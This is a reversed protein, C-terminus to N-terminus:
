AQRDLAVAWDGCRPLEIGSRWAFALEFNYQLKSSSSRSVVVPNVAPATDPALTSAAAAAITPALTPAVAIALLAVCAELVTVHPPVQHTPPHTPPYHTHPHAPEPPLHM